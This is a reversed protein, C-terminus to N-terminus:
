TRFDIGPIRLESVLNGSASVFNRVPGYALTVIDEGVFQEGIFVFDAILSIAPRHINIAVPRDHSSAFKAIGAAGIEQTVVARRPYYHLLKAIAVITIVKTRGTCDIPVHGEDRRRPRAGSAPRSFHMNVSEVTRPCRLIHDKGRITEHTILETRGKIDVAIHGNYTSMLVNTSASACRINETEVTRRPDLFLFEKVGRANIGVLKAKTYGDLTVGCHDTSRRFISKVARNKNVM